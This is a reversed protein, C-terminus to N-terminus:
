DKNVEVVARGKPKLWARLASGFATVSKWIVVLFRPAGAVLRGGTLWSALRWLRYPIALAALATLAYGLAPYAGSNYMPGLVATLLPSTGQKAWAGAINPEVALLYTNLRNLWAHGEVFATLAATDRFLGSGTGHEIVPLRPSGAALAFVVALPLLLRGDWPLPWLYFFILPLTTLDMVLAVLLVFLLIATVIASSWGSERMAARSSRLVRWAWRTAVFYRKSTPARRPWLWGFLNALGSRKSNRADPDGEDGQRVEAQWAEDVAAVEDPSLDAEEPEVDERGADLWADYERRVEPDLLADRAENLRKTMDSALDQRGGVNIDPHYARILRRYAAEIDDPTADRQVMLLDYYNLSRAM